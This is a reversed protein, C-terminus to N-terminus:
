KAGGACIKTAREPKGQRALFVDSAKGLCSKAHSMTTMGRHDEKNTLMMMVHKDEDESDDDRVLSLANNRTAM